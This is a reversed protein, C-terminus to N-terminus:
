GRRLFRDVAPFNIVWLWGTARRWLQCVVQNEHSRLLVTKVWTCSQPLLAVVHARERGPRPVTGQRALPLDCTRCRAPVPDPAGPRSSGQLTVLIVPPPFRALHPRGICCTVLVSFHPELSPCSRLVAIALSSSHGQDYGRYGGSSSRWCGPSPGWLGGGSVGPPALVCLCPRLSPAPGGWTSM